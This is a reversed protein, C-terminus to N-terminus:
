ICGGLVGVRRIRPKHKVLLSRLGKRQASSVRQSSKRNFDAAARREIHPGAHKRAAADECQTFACCQHSRKGPSYGFDEAKSLYDHAVRRVATQLSNIEPLVVPMDFTKLIENLSGMVFVYAAREGRKATADLESFWDRFMQAGVRNGRGVIDERMAQSVM